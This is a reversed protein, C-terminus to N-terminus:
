INELTFHKGKEFKGFSSDQLEPIPLPTLDVALRIQKLRVCFSSIFLLPSFIKSLNTKM